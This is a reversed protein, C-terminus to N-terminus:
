FLLLIITYKGKENTFDSLMDSSDAKEEIVMKEVCFLEIRVPINSNIYGANTEAILVAVYSMVDPVVAEFDPTFYIMVSYTVVTTLDNEGQSM